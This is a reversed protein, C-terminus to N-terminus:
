SFEVITKIEESDQQFARRFQEPPIKTTVLEALIGPFKKEIESMDGLGLEFYKRNANVSGLFLKNGLVDSRLIDGLDISVTKDSYVGLFCLVGNRESLGLAGGAVEANGTAEIIINFREGLESLPAETANVYRAGVSEAIRAKKSKKPRTAVTTVELNRARLLCTALLGLAGAGLVLAKDPEWFSMREQIKYIQFVAKEVVSMPELLVAVDNRFDAPVKVLFDSDSVSFESAFGHLKYIGHEKYSGYLCMDSEGRACNPCNDPRRVTPVIRDGVSYGTVDKGLEEITGVTEHGLILYDFGDPPEGYQGAYIEKDTGDIGLRHVKFLVQKPAPKPTPVDMLGVSEKVKPNAIIAKL